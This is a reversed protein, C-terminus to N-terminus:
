VVAVTEHRGSSRWSIYVNHIDPIIHSYPEFFTLIRHWIITNLVSYLPLASKGVRKPSQAYDQLCCKQFTSLIRIRVFPSFINPISSRFVRKSYKNTFHLIYQFILNKRYTIDVFETNINKIESYGLPLLKVQFIYIYWIYVCLFFVIKKDFM